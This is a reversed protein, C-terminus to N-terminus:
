RVEERKKDEPAWGIGLGLLTAVGALILLVPLIGQGPAHDFGHFAAACLPGPLVLLASSLVLGAGWRWPNFRWSGGVQYTVLHTKCEPQPPVPLEPLDAVLVMLDKKIVAHLAKDRRAAFEEESLHGTSIAASIRDIYHDRDDNGARKNEESVYTSDSM